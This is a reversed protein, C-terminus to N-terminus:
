VAGDSISMKINIGSYKTPSTSTLSPIASTHSHPHLPPPTCDRLHDSVRRSKDSLARVDTSVRPHSFFSRSRFLIGTIRVSAFPKSSPYQDRRNCFISPIDRQHSGCAPISVSTLQRRLGANTASLAPISYMPSRCYKQLGAAGPEVLM